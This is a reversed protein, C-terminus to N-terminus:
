IYMDGYPKEHVCQFSFWLLVNCQLKVKEVNILLCYVNSAELLECFAKLTFDTPNDVSAFLFCNACTLISHHYKGMNRIRIMYTDFHMVDVTERLM